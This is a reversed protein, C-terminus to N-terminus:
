PAAGIGVMFGLTFGAILGAALAYVIFTLRDRREHAVTRATLDACFPCQAQEVNEDAFHGGCAACKRITV